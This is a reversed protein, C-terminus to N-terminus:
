FRVVKVQLHNDRALQIMSKTGPSKGDWFAVLAHSAKAMEANRIHGASRGYKSWDAPHADIRYGRERAYREGAEDAGRARGSVVIINYGEQVKKSLYFDLRERLLDYNSFSRSGAIIVRFTKGYAM